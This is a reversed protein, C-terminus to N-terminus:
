SVWYTYTVGLMRAPRSVLLDTTMNNSLLIAKNSLVAATDHTKQKRKWDDEEEDDDVDTHAAQCGELRGRLEDM